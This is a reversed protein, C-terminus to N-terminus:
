GKVKSIALLQHQGALRLLIGFVRTQPVEEFQRLERSLFTREFSLYNQLTQAFDVFGSALVVTAALRKMLSVAQRKSVGERKTYVFVRFLGRFVHSKMM